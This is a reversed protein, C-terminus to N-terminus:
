TTYTSFLVPDANHRSVQNLKWSLNAADRIGQCMGQGMFPPTQHAADGLLFVRGAQWHEAVLAHFRYVASRIVEIDDPSAWRSLLAAIRAPDSIEEPTEGPMLMLEWRRYHRNGVVYTCPRTPECYQIHHDPFKAPEKIKADIVIWPEDFELDELGIGVMRRVPGNAGDAAFVYDATIEYYEDAELDRVTLRARNEDQDIAELEHRLFIDVSEKSGAGERLVGELGPQYFTYNSNWSFPFPPPSPEIIRIPQGQAGQYVTRRYPQAHRLVDDALGISQFIRMIEHDFAIARPLPFIDQDREIVATRYGDRGLFNSMTAGVPGYGVIVTDYHDDMSM